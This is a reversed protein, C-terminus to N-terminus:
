APKKVVLAALCRWAPGSTPKTMVAKVGTKIARKKQGGRHEAWARGILVQQIQDKALFLKGDAAAEPLPPPHGQELDDTGTELRQKLFRKAQEELFARRNDAFAHVTTGEHLRYRYCIRPEYGVRHRPPFRLMLDIDEGVKFYPRCGGLARLVDGRILWTNLHTRTVGAALEQTVEEGAGGGGVANLTTGKRDMMEFRGCVADFEPRAALWDVQWALRGPVYLDDADCRAILDGRCQALAANTAAAVGTRPGDVVRVRPDGIALVTQRSTDTSGDDVFVVELDVGQQDLVSRVAPGVFPEGNRCAIMVSVLPM